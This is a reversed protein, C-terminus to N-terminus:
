EQSKAWDNLFGKMMEESTRIVFSPFDHYPTTILQHNGWVTMYPHDVSPKTAITKSPELGLSVEATLTGVCGIGVDMTLISFFLSPAYLFARAKDREKGTTRADDSLM